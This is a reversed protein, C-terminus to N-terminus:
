GLSVLATTDFSRCLSVVIVAAATYRLAAFLSLESGGYAMTNSEVPVVDYMYSPGM